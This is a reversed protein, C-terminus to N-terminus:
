ERFFVESARECIGNLYALVVGYNTIPLGADKCKKIRSLLTKKTIMCGGCHIALQYQSLDDPFDYATYYEFELRVGTKKMLLMPIKVRGIDEHTHNHTCAELMLIKDGARLQGITNCASLMHHIDGKQRALLMSFSTLLINKPVVESVSKFIQSDTVVLDVKPLTSIVRPLEEEKTVTCIVGHDLCDRIFAVQPLILRGKPAGSDIPVIMVTHDGDTLLGSIMSDDETSFKMLEKALHLKLQSITNEDKETVFHSTKYIEKLESIKNEDLLLDTKTFVITYPTNQFQKITNEIESHNIKNCDVAYLIYDCRELIQKTKKRREEGLLSADGFGATDILAVPGYPLLEMGKIVPDTTTGHTDSVIALDQQLMRNFLMSKGANTNGFIGIHMRNALPTEAKPTM